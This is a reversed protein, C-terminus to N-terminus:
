SHLEYDQKARLELAKAQQKQAISIAKQFDLEAVQLNQTIKLNLEGRLRYLEAEWFHEQNQDVKTLAKTLINLASNYDGGKSYAQAMLGLFYTQSIQGGIKTHATIGEQLQTIGAEFYGQEVLVWGKLIKGHVLWFEFSQEQSLAIAAEAYKQVLEPQQCYQYFMAALSLAMGLSYPHSRENALILSQQSYHLAQETNGLLWSSWSLFSLFGIGVDQGTLCIYCNNPNIQYLSLGKEWHTQAIILDGLYFHCLGLTFYAEMELIPNQQQQAVSMLRHAFELAIQYEARAIHYSYLGWLVLFIQPTDGIKLCLEESRKYVTEVESAAYGKTAILAKGLTTKLQLEQELTQPTEPLDKLLFLGKNFHAIAEENASAQFAKDGSKQWYNVANELLGAKTYHYALLEPKQKAFEPFKSELAQAIQRHYRQRTSKLLSDYAADQILVTKFSYSSIPIEGKINLLNREVLQQLGQIIKNEDLGLETLEHIAIMQLLEYSFERGITAGLQAVERAHELRDLREMLLGKLTDPITLRPVSGVLQYRDELDELWGSDLVMKTLEEVFLPIGDSKEIILKMVLDPLPKGGTIGNIIATIQELSLYDLNIETVQSFNLYKIEFGPRSICLRLIPLNAGAEILRNLVELSSPDIWHLDEVIVLVPQQSALRRIMALMAEIIKQKQAQPSLNLPTYQETLPIELLQAFLPVTEALPLQNETLYQELKKLKEDSGDNQWLNLVRERLMEVIPHFPTHQYYPSCYLERLRYNEPSLYQKFAQILRSKGMGAEGTVLVVQGQGVKVTEWIAKLQELEQQRGIHPTERTEAIKARQCHNTERLVQYVQTAQSIGKLSHLGLPHFEFIDQVLQYTKQSLVAMNPQALGQLRAALNPTQGIALQERKNGAGVEGVVVLGTHLGLRVALKLCRNQVCRTKLSAMAEIIGLAARVARQADDEHAIPYGFYILIGDGLYQAIYGEFQMVVQACTEQYTQILERLEEPDLQESLATSGVLDCFMVTLLRREAPRTFMVSSRERVQAEPKIILPTFGGEQFPSPKSNNSEPYLIEPKNVSESNTLLTGCEICFKARQSNNFGCSPCVKNMTTEYNTAIIPIESM